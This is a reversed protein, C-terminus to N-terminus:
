GDAALRVVLLFVAVFLLLLGWALVNQRSRTRVISAADGVDAKRRELWTSSRVFLWMGAGLALLGLGISKPSSGRIAVVIGVAATAGGILKGFTDPLRRVESVIQEGLTKMQCDIWPLDLKSRDSVV